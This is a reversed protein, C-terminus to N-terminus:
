FKKIGFGAAAAAAYANPFRARMAAARSAANERPKAMGGKTKM